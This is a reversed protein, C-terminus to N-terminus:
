QKSNKRRLHKLAIMRSVGSNHDKFVCGYSFAHYRQMKEKRIIKGSLYINLGEFNYLCKLTDGTELENKLVICMGTVSVNKLVGEVIKRKGQKNVITVKLIEGIFLRYAERRNLREINEQSSVYYVRMGQYEAVEFTLSTFTFIGEQLTYIIEVDQMKSPDLVQNDELLSPIIIHTMNKNIVDLNIRFLKEKYIFKLIIKHNMDIEVLRM